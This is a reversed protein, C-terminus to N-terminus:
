EWSLTQKGWEKIITFLQTSLLTNNSSYFRIEYLNFGEKMTGYPINAYYQWSTGNPLFKKLRFNNVTIYEVTNRPVAGSVTVSSLTTKYPNESPSVIRFVKDSTPFTTPILKDTWQKREESYLTLVWRELLGGGADYAKYVIDLTDTTIPTALSFTNTTIDLNAIKDNIVVKSVNPSLIKWTVKILSGTVISGDFPSLITIYKGWTWPSNFPANVIGSLTKGSSGTSTGSLINQELLTQGNHAIFFSNQKISDDIKDSLSALTTGPNVLDSQSVMIRNGADLTTRRAEGADMEVSGSLVYVISHIRQQEVLVVDNSSLDVGIHKLKLRLSSSWEIWVRWQSVEFTIGSNTGGKYSVEGWKDVWVSLGDKTLHSSWSIVSLISDSAWFTDQNDADRKKGNSDTIVVKGSWSLTFGHTDKISSDWGIFTKILFIVLLVSIIILAWRLINSNNNKSPYRNQSPYRMDYSYHIVKKSSCIRDCCLYCRKM